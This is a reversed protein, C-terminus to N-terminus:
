DEDSTNLLEKAKWIEFDKLIKANCADCLFKNDTKDKDQFENDYNRYPVTRQTCTESSFQGRCQECNTTQEETEREYTSFAGKSDSYRAGACDTIEVCSCKTFKLLAKERDQQSSFELGTADIRLGYKKM